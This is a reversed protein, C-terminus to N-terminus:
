GNPKGEIEYKKVIKDFRGTLVRLSEAYTMTEEEDGARIVRMLKNLCEFYCELDSVEHPLLVFQELEWVIRWERFKNPITLPTKWEMEQMNYPPKPESMETEERPPPPPNPTPKRPTAPGKTKRKSYAGLPLDFM